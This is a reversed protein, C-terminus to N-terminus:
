YACMVCFNMSTARLIVRVSIEHMANLLENRKLQQNEGNNKEKM